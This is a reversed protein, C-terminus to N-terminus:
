MGFILFVEKLIAVPEFIHMQYFKFALFGNPAFIIILSLAFL